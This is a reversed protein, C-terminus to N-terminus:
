RSPRTRALRSRLQDATPHQLGDVIALGQQWARRAAEHDDASQHVDGLHILFEALDAPDGTDGLLDIAEQYSAIAAAHNGLHHHAYGLSDLTVAEGRIHRPRLGRYIALAERCCTLAEQFSGLQAHCWGVSNLSHAQGYQHELDRCLRLAQQAHSLADGFRGQRIRTV